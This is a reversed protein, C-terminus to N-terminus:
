APGRRTFSWPWFGCLHLALALFGALEFTLVLPGHMLHLILALAFCVVAAIGFM